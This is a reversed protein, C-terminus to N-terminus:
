ILRGFKCELMEVGLHLEDLFARVYSYLGKSGDSNSNVMKGDYGVRLKDM